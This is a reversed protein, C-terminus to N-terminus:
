GLHYFSFLLHALLKLYFHLKLDWAIIIFYRHMLYSGLTTPAFIACLKYVYEFFKTKDLYKFLTSIATAYLISPTNLYGKYTTIIRNNLLSYYQTGFLHLCLSAIGLVYIGIRFPLKIEYNDIYYGIFIFIM